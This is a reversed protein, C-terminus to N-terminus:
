VFNYSQVAQDIEIARVVGREAHLMHVEEAGAEHGLQFFADICVDRFQEIITIVEYLM